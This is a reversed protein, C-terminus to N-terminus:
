YRGRVLLRINGLHKETLERRRGTPLCYLGHEAVFRGWGSGRDTAMRKHLNLAHGAARPGSRPKPDM